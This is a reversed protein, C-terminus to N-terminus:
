CGSCPEVGLGGECFQGSIRKRPLTRQAHSAYLCLVTVRVTSMQSSFSSMVTSVPVVLCWSGCVFSVEPVECSFACANITNTLGRRIANANVGQAWCGM